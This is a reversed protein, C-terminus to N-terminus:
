DRLRAYAPLAAVFACWDGFPKLPPEGNVGPEGSGIAILLGVDAGRMDRRYTSRGITYDASGKWGHPLDVIAGASWRRTDIAYSTSEGGLRGVPFSLAIDQDFPNGPAGGSLLVTRSLRNGTWRGTNKLYFGDLYVEARSGLRRRVNVLGSTTRGATAIYARRGSLDDTIDLPVKGANALLRADADASTGSFGLPLYTYAAGLAAGGHAADLSLTGDLSAVSVGNRVPLSIAYADPNNAFRLRGASEVYDRQGTQLPEAEGHSAFLMVDTDGHDPTFGLRGEMRFQRSDGRDSGGAYATLEAGRYDRRLVVNVVGGIAGPGFIGGATGTLVEIREVAGPPIGNIDAQSFDGVLSPVFPMRRGDVLVLTSTEGFGRLDIASRNEGGGLALPGAQTNAPERVRLFEDVTARAATEIEAQGFVKYPQIDNETRRIDANQTRRGVVLLEAVAGDGTEVPRPVPIAFLVFAGGPTVRYDVGSGALLKSLAAKSSLRGRLPRATLDRVLRPDFLIEIQTQRALDALAAKMPGGRVDLTAPAAADARTAVGLIGAM